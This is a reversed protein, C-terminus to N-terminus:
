RIGIAKIQKLTHSFASITWEHCWCYCSSVLWPMKISVIHLHIDQILVVAKQCFVLEPKAEAKLLISLHCFYLLVYFLYFLSFLQLVKKVKM